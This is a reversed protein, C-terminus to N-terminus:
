DVAEDFVAAAMFLLLHRWLMSWKKEAEDM